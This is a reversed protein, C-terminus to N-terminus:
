ISEKLSQSEWGFTLLYKEFVEHITIRMLQALQEATLRVKATIEQVRPDVDSFVIKSAFPDSENVGVPSYSKKSSADQNSSTHFLSAREVSDM